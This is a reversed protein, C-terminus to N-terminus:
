VTVEAKRYMLRLAVFMLGAAAFALFAQVLKSPVGLQPMFNSLFSALMVGGALGFVSGIRYARRQGPGALYEPLPLKPDNRHRVVIVATAGVLVVASAGILALQAWFPLNAMAAWIAVVVAVLGVVAFAAYERTAAGWFPQGKM